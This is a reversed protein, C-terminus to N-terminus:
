RSTRATGGSAPVASTQPGPRAAAPTGGGTPSRAPAAGSHVGSATATAAQPAAAGKASVQQAQGLSLSVHQEHRPAQQNGRAQPTPKVRERRSPTAGGGGTASPTTPAKFAQDQHGRRRAASWGSAGARPEAAGARPAPAAAAPPTQRHLAGCSSVGVTPESPSGPPNRSETRPARSPPQATAGWAPDQQCPVRSSPAGHHRSPRGGIKGVRHQPNPPADQAVGM